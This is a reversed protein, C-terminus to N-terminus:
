RGAVEAMRTRDGVWGVDGFVSGRFAGVDKGIEARTLWFVNGSQATDPRQGRITQTGGLYWRRQPPV